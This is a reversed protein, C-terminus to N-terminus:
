FVRGFCILGTVVGLFGCFRRLPDIKNDGM